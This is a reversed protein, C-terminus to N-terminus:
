RGPFDGDTDRALSAPFVEAVRKVADHATRKPRYGFSGPQFDSQGAQTRWHWRSLVADLDGGNKIPGVRIDVGVHCGGEEIAERMMAFDDFGAVFAPAEFFRAQIRRADLVGREGRQAVRDGVGPRAIDEL